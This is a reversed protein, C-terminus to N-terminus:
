PAAAGAGPVDRGARDPLDALARLVDVAGQGIREPVYGGELVVVVRGAASPRTRELIV